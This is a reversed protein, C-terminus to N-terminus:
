GVPTTVTNFLNLNVPNGAGITTPIGVNCDGSGTNFHVEWDENNTSGGPQVAVSAGAAITRAGGTSSSGLTISSSGNNQYTIVKDPNKFNITLANNGSNSAGSGTFVDNAAITGTYTATALGETSFATAVSTGNRTITATVNQNGDPSQNTSTLTVDVYSFASSPATVTATNTAGNVTTSAAIGSGSAVTVGIDGATGSGSGTVNDYALLFQNSSSNNKVQRSTGAAYVLQSADTSDLRNSNSTLNYTDGTSSNNQFTIDFEVARVGHTSTNTSPGNCSFSFVDGASFVTNVTTSARDGTNFQPGRITFGTAGGDVNVSGIQSGNIFFTCPGQGQIVVNVFSTTNLLTLSGSTANIPFPANAQNGGSTTLEVLSGDVETVTVAFDDVTQSSTGTTATSAGVFTADVLTDNSTNRNFESISVPNTDGYFDRITSFSITNGTGSGVAM